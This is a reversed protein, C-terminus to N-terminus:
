KPTLSCGTTDCFSYPVGQQTTEIGEEFNLFGKALILEGKFIFERTASISTCCHVRSVSM